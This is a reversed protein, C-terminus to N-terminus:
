PNIQIVAAIDVVRVFDRGGDPALADRPLLRENNCEVHKVEGRDLPVDAGPVFVQDLREAVPVTLDDRGAVISVQVRSERCRTGSTDRTTTTTTIDAVTAYPRPTDTGGVGSFFGGPLLAMLAADARAMAVVAGLFTRAM